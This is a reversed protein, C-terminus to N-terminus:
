PLMPVGRVMFNLFTVLTGLQPDRDEVDNRVMQLFLSLERKMLNFFTM